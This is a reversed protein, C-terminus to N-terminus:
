LRKSMHVTEVKFGEHRYLALAAENEAGANLWLSGANQKRAWEEAKSLLMSGIGRRRHEPRVYIDLVWGCFEGTGLGIETSVWIFGARVGCVEAIFAAEPKKANRHFREINKRAQDRLTELSLEGRREARETLLSSEILGEEIFDWDDETGDRIM